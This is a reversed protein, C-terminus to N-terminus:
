TKVATTGKAPWLFAPPIAVAEFPEVAVPDGGGFTGVLLYKGDGLRFVEVTRERPDVLWVHAVRERAYIPMKEMRDIRLTGPSLIECVWDPVVTIFADDVQGDDPLRGERWGGLDPVVVDPEPGLHIEPEYIITWGGPGIAGADYAGFLFAGLGSATRLHRRKPRPLLHLAGDLVEAIMESPADLVDQYGARRKRATESMPKSWHLACRVRAWPGLRVAERGPSRLRTAWPGSWSSSARMAVLSAQVQDIHELMQRLLFRTTDSLVGDIARAVDQKPADM